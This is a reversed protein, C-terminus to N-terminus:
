EDAADSTYLLCVAINTLPGTPCLTISGCDEALLTDVIYDVAHESRLTMSPEPLVSGGPLDLGSQGHVNEATNLVRVMPQACGSYVAVDTHGALECVKLANNRTLDLPVNGAVCTIGLLDIEQPSGLALLIAVADDHGPDCDLIIKRKSM